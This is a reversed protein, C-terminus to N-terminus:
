RTNMLKKELAIVEDMIENYKQRAVPDYNYDMGFAVDIPLRQRVKYPLKKEPKNLKCWYYCKEAEKFNITFVRHENTPTLGRAQALLLAPVRHNGEFSFLGTEGSMLKREVYDISTVNPWLSGNELIDVALEIKNGNYKNLFPDSHFKKWPRTLIGDRLQIDTIKIWKIEILSEPHSALEVLNALNFEVYHCNYMRNLEDRSYM